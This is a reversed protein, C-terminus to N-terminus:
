DKSQIQEIKFDPQNVIQRFENEILKNLAEKKGLGHYQMIGELQAMVASDLM